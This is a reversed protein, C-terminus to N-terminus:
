FCGLEDPTPDDGPAPFPPPPNGAGLFLYGLIRILIKM